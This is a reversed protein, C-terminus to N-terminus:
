SVATYTNQTPVVLELTLEQGQSTPSAPQEGRLYLLFFLVLAM